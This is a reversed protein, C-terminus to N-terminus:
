VNCVGHRWGDRRFVQLRQGQGESVILQGGRLAVGVPQTFEGPLRGKQGVVRLLSRTFSSYLRVCHRAGDTVAVLDDDVAIGGPLELSTASGFEFAWELTESDLAVIRDNGYDAVFLLRATSSSGLAVGQPYKLFGPGPPGRSGALALSAGTHLCLKQIRHNSRDAVYLAEEDCALGRPCNLQGPGYGFAGVVRAFEGHPSFIVIRHRASESVCVEGGSTCAVSAVERNLKLDATITRSPCFRLANAATLHEDVAVSWDRAVTAHSALADISHVKGLVLSLEDPGLVGGQM